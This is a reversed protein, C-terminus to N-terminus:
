QYKTLASDRLQNDSYDRVIVPIKEYKINSANVRTKLLSDNKEHLAISKDKEANVLQLAKITEDKQAIMSDKLAIKELYNQDSNKKRFVTFITIVLAVLILAVIAIVGWRIRQPTVITQIDTM